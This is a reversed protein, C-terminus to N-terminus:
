LFYTLQKKTSFIILNVPRLDKNRRDLDLNTCLSFIGSTKPNQKNTHKQKIIKIKMSFLNQEYLTKQDCNGM